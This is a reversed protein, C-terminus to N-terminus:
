SPLCSKGVNSGRCVAALRHRQGPVFDVFRVPKVLYGMVHENDACNVTDPDHYASALIIPVPRRQYIARAAEIGDM